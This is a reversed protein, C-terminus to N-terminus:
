PEILATIPEPRDLYRSLGREDAKDAERQVVKRRMESRRDFDTPPQRAIVPASPEGRLGCPGRNGIAELPNAQALDDRERGHDVSSRHRDHLPQAHRVIEGVVEVMWAQRNSMLKATM